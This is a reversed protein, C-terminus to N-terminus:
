WCCVAAIYILTQTMHCLPVDTYMEYQWSCCTMCGCQLISSLKWCCVVSIYIYIYIYIVTQTMHCWPVDTYMEYQWSCCTVCGYHLLQVLVNWLSQTCHGFMSNSSFEVLPLRYVVSFKSSIVLRSVRM